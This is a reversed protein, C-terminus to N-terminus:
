GISGGFRRDRKAYWDLASDFAAEDFDPWLCDTFYLETYAIQWLLFNSIRFEGGTRILLDPDQLGATDLSASLSTETLETAQERHQEFARLLDQRGGYHMAVCVTMRPQASAQQEIQRVRTRLGAPLRKLDGIFRLAVDEELLIEAQDELAEAFLTMLLNVQTQPRKWNERSFAFLTLTQIKRKGAHTILRRTAEIGCRYGVEHSQNQMRAWRRNGDM